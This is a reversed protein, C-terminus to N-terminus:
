LSRSIGAKVRRLPISSEISSVSPLRTLRGTLFAEFGALSDTVVRLLYDRNGTMLWCDVVEPFDQVAAEFSVLAADVQRDLKVSVFVQVPFGVAVEDVLAAYGTIVGDKELRRMRRLVPTPSLGVRQSLDQVSLRGERQLTQIIRVDFEDIQAPDAM